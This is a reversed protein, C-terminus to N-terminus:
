SQAEHRIQKVLNPLDPFLTGWHVGLFRLEDRIKYKASSPIELQQIFGKSSVDDLSQCGPQHLTFRSDQQLMRGSQLDPMIRLPLGAVTQPIFEQDFLPKLIGAVVPDDQYMIDRKEQGPIEHRARMMILSGTHEPHEAVAFFLGVLPNTSWDLLRTPLGHHQALFYANALSDSASLLHHGRRRFQNFLSAELSFVPDPAHPELTSARKAFGARLVQPQLLWEQRAHGRFWLNAQDKFWPPSAQCEPELQAQPVQELLDQVSGITRSV